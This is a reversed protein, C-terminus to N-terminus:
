VISANRSKKTHVSITHKKHNLMNFIPIQSVAAPIGYPLALLNLREPNYKKAPIVEKIEDNVMLKQIDVFSANHCSRINTNTQYFKRSNRNLAPLM